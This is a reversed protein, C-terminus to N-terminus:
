LHGSVHLECRRLTSHPCLRAAEAEDLTVKQLQLKDHAEVQDYAILDDLVQRIADHLWKDGLHHAGTADEDDRRRVHQRITSDVAVDL